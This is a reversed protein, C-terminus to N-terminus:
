SGQCAHRGTSKRNHVHALVPPTLNPNPDVTGDFPGNDALCRSPHALVTDFSLLQRQKPSTKTQIFHASGDAPVAALTPPDPDPDVLM